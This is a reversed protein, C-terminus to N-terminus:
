LSTELTHPGQAAARHGGAGAPDDGAGGGEAEGPGDGGASVPVDSLFFVCCNLPTVKDLAWM